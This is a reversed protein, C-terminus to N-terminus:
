DQSHSLNFCVFLYVFLNFSLVLTIILISMYLKFVYIFLNFLQGFFSIVISDIYPMGKFSVLFNRPVVRVSISLDVMFLNVLYYFFQVLVCFIITLMISALFEGSLFQFM